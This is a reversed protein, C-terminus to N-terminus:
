EEVVDPYSDPWTLLRYQMWQAHGDIFLANSGKNHTLTLTGFWTYEIQMWGGPHYAESMLWTLSPKRYSSDVKNGNRCNYCYTLESDAGRGNWWTPQYYSGYKIKFTQCTLLTKSKKYDNMITFWPDPQPWYDQIHPWSMGAGCAFGMPMRTYDSTYLNFVVGMQKQQNLCSIQRAKERAKSLSPLLLAALIAIIAIVVLLEILTFNKKMKLGRRNLTSLTCSRM